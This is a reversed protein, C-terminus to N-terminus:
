SPLTPRSSPKAKHGVLLNNPVVAPRCLCLVDNLVPKQTSTSSSPKKQIFPFTQLHTRKRPFRQCDRPSHFPLRVRKVPFLQSFTHFTYSSLSMFLTVYCYYVLGQKRVTYSWNKYGFGWDGPRLNVTSIPTVGTYYRHVLNTFYPTM